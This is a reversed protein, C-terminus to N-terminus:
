SVSLAPPGEVMCDLAWTQTYVCGPCYWGDKRAVLVRSAPHDNPCTFEHVHGARQWRNLNEVQEDTWPAEVM